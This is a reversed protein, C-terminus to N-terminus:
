FPFHYVFFEFLYSCKKQLNVSGRGVLATQCSAVLNLKEENIDLNKAFHQKSLLHKVNKM